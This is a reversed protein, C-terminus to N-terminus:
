KVSNFVSYGFIIELLKLGNSFINWSMFISHETNYDCILVNIYFFLSTRYKLCFLNSMIEAM